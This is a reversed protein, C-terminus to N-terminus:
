ADEKSSYRAALVWGAALCLVALGTGWYALLRSELLLGFGLVFGGTAAVASTGVLLRLPAGSGVRSAVTRRLRGTLVQLLLFASLAIALWGYERIFFPRFREQALILLPRM